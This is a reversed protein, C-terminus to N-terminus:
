LVEFLDNVTKAIVGGSLAAGLGVLTAYTKPNSERWSEKKPDHMSIYEKAGAPMNKRTAAGGRTSYLYLASLSAPISAVLAGHVFAPSTGTEKAAALIKKVTGPEDLLKATGNGIESTVHGIDKAWDVLMDLAGDAALKPELAQKKDRAQAMYKKALSLGIMIPVAGLIYSGWAPLLRKAAERAAASGEVERIHQLALISAKAEPYLTTAALTAGTIAGAHAQVFDVVKDDVTGPIAEKIKDGAILAIPVAAMVTNQLVPEAFARFKAFRGGTYDAAHGLEHLLIEKSIKPVFVQKTGPHYHAGVMSLPGSRFNLTVGKNALDHKAIFSDVVHSVEMLKMGAKSTAEEEGPKPRSTLDLLGLLKTHSSDIGPAHLADEVGRAGQIPSVDDMKVSGHEAFHSLLASGIMHAGKAYASSAVALGVIARESPDFSHAHDTSTAEAVKESLFLALPDRM